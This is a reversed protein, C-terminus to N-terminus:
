RGGGAVNRDQQELLLQGLFGEVDCTVIARAGGLDIVFGLDPEDPPMWGRPVVVVPLKMEPQEARAVDIARLMVEVAEDATVAEQHGAHRPCRPDVAPAEPVCVCCIPIM